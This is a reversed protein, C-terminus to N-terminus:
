EAESQDLLKEIESELFGCLWSKWSKGSRTSTDMPGFGIIKFKSDTYTNWSIWSFSGLQTPSIHKPFNDCRPFWSNSSLRTSIFGSSEDYLNKFIKFAPDFDKLLCRLSIQYNWNFSSLCNSSVFYKLWLFKFMQIQNKNEILPIRVVLVMGIGMGAGAGRKPSVLSRPPGEDSWYQNSSKNSQRSSNFRWRAESSSVQGWRKGCGHGFGQFTLLAAFWFLRGFHTM